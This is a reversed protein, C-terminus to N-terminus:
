SPDRVASVGGPHNPAQGLSLVADHSATLQDLLPKRGLQDLTTERSFPEYREVDAYKGDSV